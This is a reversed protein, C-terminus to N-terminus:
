RLTINGKIESGNESFATLVKPVESQSELTFYGEADSKGKKWLQEAKGDEFVVENVKNDSTAELVKTLLIGTM